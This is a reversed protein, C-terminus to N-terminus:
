PDQEGPSGREPAIAGGHAAKGLSKIFGSLRDAEAYITDAYRREPTGEPFRRKLMEAYGSISTLPQNMQHAAWSVYAASLMLAGGVEVAAPDAEVPLEDSPPEDSGPGSAAAQRTVLSQRRGIRLQHRVKSALDRGSMPLLIFEDAWIKFERGVAARSTTATTVLIQVRRSPETVKLRECFAAAGPMQAGLLVLDVEGGLASPGASEVDPRSLTDYGSESLIRVLSDRLAPDGEVVLIRAPPTPM